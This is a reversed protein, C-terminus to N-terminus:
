GVLESRRAVKVGLLRRLFLKATHRPCTTM